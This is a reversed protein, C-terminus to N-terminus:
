MRQPVRLTLIEAGAKLVSATLSTLALRLARQPDQAKLIPEVNYFTNFEQCLGFLYNTLLHPMRADRASCLVNSFQQLRNVLKREYVTLSSVDPMATQDASTSKELVSCCRAHTYQVYPASNGDFSLAKEWSFVIDMKRNQSLIGYAVAGVGMMEALAEPDDTQVSDGHGEIVDRARRVAEDLVEELKLVTGKRTSMGADAFRMRGFVVHEFEPLDWGLMRCVAELQQFHLSQARDVVYYLARPHYTDLRYRVMALDRTAYLTSGDGKRVMLPPLNSEEPFHAILAGGEGETFVGRTIGESLVPEMKDQYFSEGTEKDISIHLREYTHRLAQLTTDVVAKWFARLEKDGREIKAFAERAQDDLSADKEVETHFRVYLALLDDVSYQSIPKGEGWLAYAVALKGFQTGWDGPYSWGIVNCGTHRYLNILAQGIIHTGLHHVGLPKAINPGCYDIIVPSGENLPQPACAKRASELNALLVSPTLWVNVYGPDAVDIREVQKLSSLGNKLAEAIIHPSKGCAKAQQLAVATAIDGHGEERAPEWVVDVTHVGFANHLIRVAEETLFSYMSCIQYESFSAFKGGLDLTVVHFCFKIKSLFEGWTKFVFQIRFKPVTGMPSVKHEILM